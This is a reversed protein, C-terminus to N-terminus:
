LRREWENKESAFLYATNDTHEPDAPEGKLLFRYINGTEWM